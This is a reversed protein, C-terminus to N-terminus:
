DWKDEEEAKKLTKSVDKKPVLDLLRSFNGIQGLVKLRENVEPYTKRQEGLVTVIRFTHGNTMVFNDLARLEVRLFCLSELLGLHAAQFNSRETVNVISESWFKRFLPHTSPPPYESKDLDDTVEWDDNTKGTETSFKKAPLIHKTTYGNKVGKKNNDNVKVTTGDSLKINRTQPPKKSSTLIKKMPTSM